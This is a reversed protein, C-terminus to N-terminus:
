NPRVLFTFNTAPLSRVRPFGEATPQIRLRELRGRGTTCHILRVAVVPCRPLRTLRRERRNSSSNGRDDLLFFAQIGGGSDVKRWGSKTRTKRNGDKDRYSKTKKWHESISWEHWVSPRETLYTQLPADSKVAGKVENLGYFVGKVKSTPVDEVTRKFLVVSRWWFLLAFSILLPIAAFEM